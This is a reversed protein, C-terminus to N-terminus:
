RSGGLPSSKKEKLEKKDKELNEVDKKLLWIQRTSKQKLQHLQNHAELYRDIKDQLWCETEELLKSADVAAKLKPSKLYSRNAMEQILVCSM